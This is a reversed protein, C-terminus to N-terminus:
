FVKAHLNVSSSSTPPFAIRNFFEGGKKMVLLAKAHHIMLYAKKM